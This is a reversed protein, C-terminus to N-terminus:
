TPPDACGPSGPHVRYRSTGRNLGGQHDVSLLGLVELKKLARRVTRDSAGARTAIAVQSTSATGDPKTDRYLILWVSRENPRLHRMTTDIFKNLAAFRDAAKSPPAGRPCEGGMRATRRHATEPELPPLTEGPPIIRNDIVPAM